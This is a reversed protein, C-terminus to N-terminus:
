LRVPSANQAEILLEAFRALRRKGLHPALAWAVAEADKGSVRWRWQPKRGAHSPPTWPRFTGVQFINYFKELVDEDTMNIQLTLYKYTEGANNRLGFSGEGEFLGAAWALDIPSINQTM